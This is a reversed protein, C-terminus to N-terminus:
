HAMYKDEYVKSVLRLHLFDKSEVIKKIFKQASLSLKRLDGLGSRKKRQQRYETLVRALTVAHPVCPFIFALRANALSLARSDCEKRSKQKHM